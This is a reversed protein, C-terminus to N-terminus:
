AYDHEEGRGIDLVGVDLLGGGREEIPRRRLRQMEFSDLGAQQASQIQRTRTHDNRSGLNLPRLDSVLARLLWEM